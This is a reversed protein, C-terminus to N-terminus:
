TSKQEYDKYGKEIVNEYRGELMGLADQLIDAQAIFHEAEFYKSYKITTEDKGPSWYVTFARM